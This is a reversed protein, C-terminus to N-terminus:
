RRLLARVLLAVFLGAAVLGVFGETALVLRAPVTTAVVATIGDVPVLTAVSLWILEVIPTGDGALSLGDRVLWLLLPFALFAAVLLNRLLVWWKEGHGWIAGNVWTGMLALAARIRRVGSFHSQYWESQSLVAARLHEQKAETAALRYRRADRYEGLGDAAIALERCLAERLNPERPLSHELEDFAVICHEFRSYKFDCSQVTAKPFECGVFKCGIFSTGFLESKRFYCNLFACDLFRCQKLKAEKFSINAFTCHSFEVGEFTEGGKSEAAFLLGTAPDAAEPWRGASRGVLFASPGSMISGFSSIQYFDLDAVANSRPALNVNAPAM